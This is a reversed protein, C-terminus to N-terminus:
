KVLETGLGQDTVVYSSWDLGDEGFHWKIM